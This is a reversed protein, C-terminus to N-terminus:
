GGTFSNLIKAAKCRTATSVKITDKDLNFIEDKHHLSGCYTSTANKLYTKMRKISVGPPMDLEIIFKKQM